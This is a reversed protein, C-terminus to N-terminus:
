GQGKAPRYVFRAQVIGHDNNVCLGDFSWRRKKSQDYFEQSFLIHDLSEKIGQHSYTYLVDRTDRFEQM